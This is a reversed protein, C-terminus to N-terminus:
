AYSKLGLGNIGANFNFMTDITITHIVSLIPSLGM